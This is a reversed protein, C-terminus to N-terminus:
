GELRAQKEDALRRLTGEAEGRVSPTAAPDALTALATQLVEREHAERERLAEIMAALDHALEVLLDRPRLPRPRRLSGAAVERCARGLAFAPGAIRHTIVVAALLLCVMVGALAAAVLVIRWRDESALASAISEGGDPDGLAIVRSTEQYAQFLLWGLGVCLILAMGVLYSALRLQLPGDVLFNRFRRHRRGGGDPTPSPATAPGAPDAHDM